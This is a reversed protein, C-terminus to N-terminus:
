MREFPGRIRSEFKLVALNQIRFKFQVLNRIWIKQYKQSEFKLGSKQSENKSSSEQFCSKDKYLPEESVLTFLHNQIKMCYNTELWDPQKFAMHKSKNSILIIYRDIEMPEQALM